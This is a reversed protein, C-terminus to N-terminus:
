IFFMLVLIPAAYKSMYCLSLSNGTKIMFFITLDPMRWGFNSIMTSSIDNQTYPSWAISGYECLPHVNGLLSTGQCRPWLNGFEKQTCRSDKNSEKWTSRCDVKVLQPLQCHLILRGNRFLSVWWFYPTNSLTNLYMYRSPQHKLSISMTNCKSPTFNKQWMAVWQELM